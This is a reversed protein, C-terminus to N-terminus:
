IFDKSFFEKAAEISNDTNRINIIEIGINNDQMAKYLKAHLGAIREDYKRMQVEVEAMEVSLTARGAELEAIEIEAPIALMPQGIKHQNDREVRFRAIQGNVMEIEDFLQGQRVVAKSYALKAEEASGDIEVLIERFSKQKDNM